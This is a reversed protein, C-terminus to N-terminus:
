TGRVLHKGSNDHYMNGVASMVERKILDKMQGQISALVEAGNIKVNVSVPALEAKISTGALAAVSSQFDKMWPPTKMLADVNLQIEKMPLEGTKNIHNFTSAGIKNMSKAQIIGEGRTVSATNNDRGGMGGVIGGDYFKNRSQSDYRTNAYGAAEERERQRRANQSSAMLMENQRRSEAEVEAAQRAEMTLQRQYKEADMAQMEALTPVNTSPGTNQLLGSQPGSSPKNENTKPLRGNKKYDSMEQPTMVRYTRLTEISDYGGSTIAGEPTIFTATAGTNNSKVMELLQEDSLGSTSNTSLSGNSLSSGKRNQPGYDDLIAQPIAQAQAQAQAEAQQTVTKQQGASIQGLTERLNKMTRGFANKSVKNLALESPDTASGTTSLEDLLPIIANIKDQNKALYAQNVIGSHFAGNVFRSGSFLANGELGESKAEGKGFLVGAIQGYKSSLENSNALFTQAFEVDTRDTDKLFTKTKKLNAPSVLDNLMSQVQESTMVNRNGIIPLKGNLDKIIRDNKIEKVKPKYVPRPGAPVKSKELTGNAKAERYAAIRELEKQRSRQKAYEREPNRAKEDAIRLMEAPKFGTSQQEWRNIGLKNGLGSQGKSLKSKQWTEPTFVAKGHKMDQSVEEGDLGHLLISDKNFKTSLGSRDNVLANRSEAHKKALEEKIKPTLRDPDNAAALATNYTNSQRDLARDVFASGSPLQRNQAAYASADLSSGATNRGMYLLFKETEEASKESAIRDVKQSQYAIIKAADPKIKGRDREKTSAITKLLSKQGETPPKERKVNRGFLVEGIGSEEQSSMRDEHAKIRDANEKGLLATDRTFQNEPGVKRTSRPESTEMEYTMSVPRNITENWLGKSRLLERQQIEARHLREQDPSNTAVAAYYEDSARTHASVMQSDAETYVKGDEGVWGGQSAYTVGNNINNLVGKNRRANNRSVIFEGPTLMAPVTDTGRAQGGRAIGIPRNAAAAAPVNAAAPASAAATNNAIELLAELQRKEVPQMETLLTSVQDNSYGLGTLFNATQKNIIETGSEGNFVKADGFEQLFSFLESRLEEPLSQLNGGASVFKQAVLSRAFSNRSDSGGFALESAKGRLKSQKDELKALSEQAKTVDESVNTLEALAKGLINVEEVLKTKRKIEEDTIIGIKSNSNLRDIESVKANRSKTLSGFDAVDNGTTSRGITKLIRDTRVRRAAAVSDSTSKTFSQTFNDLANSAEIQKDLAATRLYAEKELTDAIAAVRAQRESRGKELDDLLAGGVQENISKIFTDIQRSKVDASAGSDEQSTVLDEFQKQIDTVKTEGLGGYLQRIARKGAAKIDDPNLNDTLITPLTKSFQESALLINKYATAQGQLEQSFSGVANLTENFDATLQTSIESLSIGFDKIPQSSVDGSIAQGRLLASDGSMSISRTESALAQLSANVTKQYSIAKNLEDLAVSRLISETKFLESGKNFSQIQEMLAASLNPDGIEQTLMGLAAVLEPAKKKIDEFTGGTSLVQNGIAAFENSLQGQLTKYGELADAKTADGSKVRGVASVASAALSRRAESEYARKRATAEPGDSARVSDAVRMQDGYKTVGDNIIKNVANVESARRAEAAQQRDQEEPDIGTFWSTIYEVAGTMGFLAGTVGGIATGLPGFISGITGGIGGATMIASQRREERSASMTESYATGSSGSTIAEDANRRSTAIGASSLAAAGAIGAATIGAAAGGFRNNAESFQQAGRRLTRRLSRPPRQMGRDFEAINDGVNTTARRTNAAALADETANLAQLSRISQNTATIQAKRARILDLDTTKDAINTNLRNIRRTLAGRQGPTTAAARQTVLDDRENTMRRVSPTGYARVRRQIREAEWNDVSVNGQLRGIARDRGTRAAANNNTIAAIQGRTFGAFGPAGAAAANRINTAQTDRTANLRTPTNVIDDRRATLAAERARRQALEYNGGEGAVRSNLSRGFARRAVAAEGVTGGAALVRNTTPDALKMQRRTLPAGNNAIQADELNGTREREYSRRPADNMWTRFGNVAGNVNRISAAMLDLQTRTIKFGQYLLIGAPIVPLISEKFKDFTGSSSETDEKFGEMAKSLAAFVALSILPSSIGGFASVPEGGVSGGRAFAPIEGRSNIYELRNRGVKSVSSAKIVFEGNSLRAFIDDSTGSGPGSVMGTLGGTAMGPIDDRMGSFRPSAAGTFGRVISRAGFLVGLQAILPIFPKTAKLVEVMAKAFGLASKAMDKFEDSVSVERMFKVFEARLIDLQKSVSKLAAAEDKALSDAAKKSAEELIQQAKAASNLIPIIKTLNRGGGIEKAVAILELSGKNLSGRKSLAASLNEFAKLPGIFNGEVDRLEVGLEELYDIIEPRQIRETITKLGTAISEASERTTSRVITMISAFEELSAGASEFVSGARKVGEIIDASEIAFEKSLENIFGFQRRFETSPKKFQQMIAIMGEVSEEMNEFSPALDSAAIVDLANSLDKGKLGAQSLTVTLESLKSASIGTRVSLNLIEQSIDALNDKTKGTVQSLTTMDKDFKLLESAASKFAFAIKAIIAVGTGYAAFRRASDGVALGFNTAFGTSRRLTDGVAAIERQATQTNINLPVNLQGQLQRLISQINRQSLQFQLEATARIM